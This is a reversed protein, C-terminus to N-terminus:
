GINYLLGPRSMVHRHRWCGRSEAALVLTPSAGAHDLSSATYVLVRWDRERTPASTAYLRGYGYADNAICPGDAVGRLHVDNAGGRRSM